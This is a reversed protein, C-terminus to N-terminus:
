GAAYGHRFSVLEYTLRTKCNTFTSYTSPTEQRRYVDTGVQRVGHVLALVVARLLVVGVQVVDELSGPVVSQLLHEEGAATQRVALPRDLRRLRVVSQEGRHSAM